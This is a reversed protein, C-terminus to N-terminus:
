TESDHIQKLPELHSSLDVRIGIIACPKGQKDRILERQIFYTRTVQNVDTFTDIPSHDEGNLVAQDKARYKRGIDEGFIEYDNFGIFEEPTLGALEAAKPNIHLYYGDIDKIFFPIQLHHVCHHLLEKNM